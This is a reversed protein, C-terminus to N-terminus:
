AGGGAPWAALWSVRALGFLGQAAVAVALATAGVLRRPRIPPLSWGAAAAAALVAAAVELLKTVLGLADVAERGGFASVNWLRSVAYLGLLGSVMVGAAVATWRSGPTRWLAVALLVQATGAAAFFVGSALSEQAHQGVLALHIGGAAGLTVAAGAGLWRAPTPTGARQLWAWGAVLLLALLPGLRLLQAAAGGHVAGEVHALVIPGSVEGLRDAAGGPRAAGRRDDARTGEM